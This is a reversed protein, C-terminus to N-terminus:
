CEASLGAGHVVQESREGVHGRGLVVRDCVQVHVDVWGAVPDDAEM